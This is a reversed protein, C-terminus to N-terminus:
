ASVNFVDAGSSPGGCGVTGSAEGVCVNQLTLKQVRGTVTMKAGENYELPGFEVRWRGRNDAKGSGSKGAYKITIRERPKAYGWIAVKAEAQLVMNNGFLAALKIEATATAAALALFALARM